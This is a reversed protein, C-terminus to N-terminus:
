QSPRRCGLLKITVTGHYRNIWLRSPIVHVIRQPALRQITRSSNGARQATKDILLCKRLVPWKPEFRKWPHRCTSQRHVTPMLGLVSSVPLRSSSEGATFLVACLMDYFPVPLDNSKGSCGTRHWTERQTHNLFTFLFSTQNWILDCAHFHKEAIFSSFADEITM